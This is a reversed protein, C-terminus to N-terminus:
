MKATPIGFPGGARGAHPSQRYKMSCMIRCQWARAYDQACGICKNCPLMMLSNGFISRAKDFNLYKSMNLIKINHKGDSGIGNDVALLPHFCAM